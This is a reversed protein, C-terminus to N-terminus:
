EEEKKVRNNIRKTDYGPVPSYDQDVVYLNVCHGVTAAAFRYALAWAEEETEILKEGKKKDPFYDSTLIGGERLEFAVMYGRPKTEYATIMAMATQMKM